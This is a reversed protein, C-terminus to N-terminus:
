KYKKMYCYVTGVNTVDENSCSAAVLVTALLMPFTFKKM